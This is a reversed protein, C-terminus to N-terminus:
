KVAMKQLLTDLEEMFANAMSAARQPEEDTVEIAIIGDKGTSIDARKNLKKRVDEIYEKDYLERLKFREIIRDFITDGKLIGVYLDGPSKLGLMTALGTQGAMATEKSLLSGGGLSELLQASLTLNQQPPLLRATPTYKNPLLFLILYTLASVAAASCIIMRSHKAIVILYDLLHVEDSSPPFKSIPENM